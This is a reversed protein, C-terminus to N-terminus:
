LSAIVIGVLGFFLSVTILALTACEKSFGWRLLHHHFHGKDAKFPNKRKILRRIISLNTDYTPVRFVLLIALLCVISGSEFVLHSSLAALIFGLFLAGCDGMFIKAHPFNRPLFGLTAGLLLLSCLLVEFNGFILSIVALCLSESACIGGALGNLGDTLNIANSLYMIWAFTFVGEVLTKNGSTFIFVAAAGFQGALKQFPSLSVTDDLFGVLFITAGGLLLSIKLEYNVHSLALLVSFAVFFALGGGRAIPFSHMKRANPVDIAGIRYSLALSPFYLTYSFLFATVILLLYILVTFFM